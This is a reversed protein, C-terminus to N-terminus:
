CNKQLNSGTGGATDSFSLLAEAVMIDEPTTIKINKYSGEVLKVKIDTFREVVSADDTVPPQGSQAKRGDACFFQERLKAYADTILTADFVQPTQIIWVTNRDPTSVAFDYVDAIKVTDKSPMAAVCAHHQLVAEYTRRLIEESLFPRASDHIFVFGECEPKGEKRERLLAMANEVSWCRQSGGPVVASVKSFGYKEVIERRVYDLTNEQDSNEAGKGAVLICDDIIESQQIVKLSYWLLPKGDLPMFQKAVGSKMRSGSGGALLVATCRKKRENDGSM